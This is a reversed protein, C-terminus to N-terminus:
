IFTRAMKLQYWEAPATTLVRATYRDLALDFMVRSPKQMPTPMAATAIRARLVAWTRAPHHPLDAHHRLGEVMILDLDDTEDTSATM